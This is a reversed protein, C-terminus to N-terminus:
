DVLGVKNLDFYADYFDMCYVYDKLEVQKRKEIDSFYKKRKDYSTPAIGLLSPDEPIMKYLFDFEGVGWDQIKSTTNTAIVTRVNPHTQGTCGVKYEKNSSLFLSNMSSVIPSFMYTDESDIKCELSPDLWKCIKVALFTGPPPVIPTDFDAGFLIDDGKYLSHFRGQIMMSYKRNRGQFYDFDPNHKPTNTAFGNYDKLRVFLYGTFHDSHIYIPHENVDVVVLENYNPGASIKLQYDKADM